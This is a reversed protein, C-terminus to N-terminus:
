GPPFSFGWVDLQVNGKTQSQIRFRGSTSLPVFMYLLNLQSGLRGTGSFNAVGPNQTGDAYVTLEGPSDCGVSCLASQAGPPVGSPAGTVDKTADFPGYVKGAKVAQQTIRHSAGFSTFGPAQIYGVRAAWLSDSMAPISPLWELYYSQWPTQVQIPQFTLDVQHVLNFPATRLDAYAPTYIAGWSTAATLQFYGPPPDYAPYNPTQPIPTTRTLWASAETILAGNPVDIRVNLFDPRSTEYIIGNYVDTTTKTTRPKFDFGHYSRYTVGPTAAPTIKALRTDRWDLSSFAGLVLARSRLRTYNCSANLAVPRSDCAAECSWCAAWAGAERLV